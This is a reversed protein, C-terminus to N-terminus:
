KLPLEDLQYGESLIYIVLVEEWVGTEVIWRNLKKQGGKLHRAVDPYNTHIHYNATM